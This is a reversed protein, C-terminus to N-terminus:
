VCVNKSKKEKHLSPLSCSAFSVMKGRRVIKEFDKSDNLKAYHLKM